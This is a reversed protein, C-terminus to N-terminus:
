EKKKGRGQLLMVIVIALVPLICHWHRLLFEMTEEKLSLM